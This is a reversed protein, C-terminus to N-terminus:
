PSKDNLAIRAVEERTIDSLADWIKDPPIELREALQISLREQTAYTLGYPVTKCRVEVLFLKPM